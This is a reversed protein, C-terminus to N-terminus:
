VIQEIEPFIIRFTTGKGTKSTVSIDVNNIECYKKVLALGLGSGEHKRAYGHSEQSFKSFLKPMFEDSMGIGTDSIELVPAINEEFYRIVIKGKETYKIANHVLNSFAQTFTYRDIKVDPENTFSNEWKIELGKETAHPKFEDVVPSIIETSLKTPEMNLSFAGSEVSSLNLILDITRILRKSASNISEFCGEMEEPIKGEFEGQILSTYNLITNIPTRIEHSMQALFESKLKEATKAEDIAKTLEKDKKELENIHFKLHWNTELLKKNLFIKSYEYSFSFIMIILYMSFYRIKFIFAADSYDSITYVSIVTLIFFVMSIAIGKRIGFFFLTGLPFLLTWLYGNGMLGGSYLLYQLHISLTILLIWSAINYNMTQRLYIFTSVSIFLAIGVAISFQPSRYFLALIFFILLFLSAAFIMAYLLLLKSLTLIQNYNGVRKEPIRLIKYINEKFNMSNAFPDM